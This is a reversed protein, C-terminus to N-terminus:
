SRDAISYIYLPTKIIKRSPKKTKIRYCLIYLKGLFFAYGECEIQAIEMGM